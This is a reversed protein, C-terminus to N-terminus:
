DTMGLRQRGTPCDKNLVCEACKPKRAICITRGHWMLHNCFATWGSEPILRALDFEIKTPDTNATLGLLGSLRMVHTDVFIAPLGLANGRVVHATKRGVGPLKVLEELSEPMKNNYQEAIARSAAQISKAKNRYFGTPRIIREIDAPDAAALAKPDPYLKFLEPTVTNVRADTCQAALITAILLEFPNKFDLPVRADPYTKALIKQIRGARARLEKEPEPAPPPTPKKTM